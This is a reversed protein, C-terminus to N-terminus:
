HDNEGESALELMEMEIQGTKSTGNAIRKKAIEVYEANMEIGIFGFGLKKAAVGTSGSGCFPDLITGGNPTILKCLYEMLKLPKVTPHHNARPAGLASTRGEAPASRKSGPPDKEPMGELGANRESKSAKACYFFRSAGGSDNFQSGDVVNDKGPNFMCDKFTRNVTQGGRPKAARTEATQEDLLAASEEDFIVNAPFRGQPSASTTIEEKGEGSKKWIGSKFTRACNKAHDVGSEIRTGDINLGGVGWKEVNQAVTGDLPKRFCLVVEWAPKLATGWGQWQKALDTSAITQNYEAKLHGGSGSKYGESNQGAGKAVGVVKREAGAAKDIAKDISHSKPFGSGFTWALGPPGGFSAVTDRNQFGAFRLACSMLDWTRTGAFCLVHAGPKLVRYVERWYEPGPVFSDWSKGMFGKSGHEYKDGAIWHKMVEAIDPEKSLGYPPDTVVADVSNAPMDKMWSLCDGVFIM